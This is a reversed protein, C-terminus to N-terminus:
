AARALDNFDLGEPPRAISVKRGEAHWRSAAEEAAELGTADADAAIVVEQVDRPLLLKKMGGASLAAWTPIGTAQQFSLGTEIGESVAIKPGPSALPVGGGGIPGLSMKESKLAAKGSGDPLLFTRHIGIISPADDPRIVAAVMIPHFADDSPHKGTVYHLSPPILGRYGRSRLYTEVATGAAPVSRRWIGLAADRSDDKSHRSPRHWPPEEDDELAEFLKRGSPSGWLGAERLADMIEQQTCGLGNCYFLVQDERQTLSFGRHYHCSPCEGTFSDGSRTLEYYEAIEEASAM